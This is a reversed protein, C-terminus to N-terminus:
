RLYVSSTPLLNSNNHSLSLSPSLTALHLIRFLVVQLLTRQPLLSPFQRSHQSLPTCPVHVSAAWMHRSAGHTNRKCLSLSPRTDLSRAAAAACKSIQITGTRSKCTITFQLCCNLHEDGHILSIKFLFFAIFFRFCTFVSFREHSLKLRPVCIQGLKRMKHLIKIWLQMRPLRGNLRRIARQEVIM